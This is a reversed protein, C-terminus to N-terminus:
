KLFRKKIIVLHWLMILPDKFINLTSKNKHVWNVPLEKILIKLLNSILVIEIDHAFRNSKLRSFIKKGLYSRYLKFGCQTDLLKINFLFLVIIKFFAGLVVRTQISNIISNKHNRSGFYVAYKNTIFNNKKWQYLQNLKVSLDIDLTLIWEASSLAVGKKLSFGKGINMFNKFLIFKVKKKFNKQKIFSNILNNSEDVSGDDIFIIELFKFNHSNIFNYILRLSELLRKDENYVPFIISLSTIM